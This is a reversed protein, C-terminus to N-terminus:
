AGGLLPERGLPRLARPGRRVAYALAGGEVLARALALALQPRSFRRGRAIEEASFYSRLEVAAPEIAESRPALARAGIEAAAVALLMSALVGSRRSDTQVVLFVTSTFTATTESM